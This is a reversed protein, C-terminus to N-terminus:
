FTKKSPSRSRSKNKKPDYMYKYILESYFEARVQEEPNNLPYSKTGERTQYSIRNNATDIELYKDHLSRKMYASIEM